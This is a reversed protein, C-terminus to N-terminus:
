PSVATQLDDIDDQLVTYTATCEIIEGPVFAAIVDNTSETGETIDSTSSPSSTANSCSGIVLEVYGNNKIAAANWHQDEFEVDTLTVNGTNTVTYTYTIVDGVAAPASKANGDSDKLSAVKEIEVDPSSTVVDVNEFALDTYESGAYTGTVTVVNEIGKGDGAGGDTSALDIGDANYTTVPDLALASTATLVVVAAAGMLQVKTKKEM